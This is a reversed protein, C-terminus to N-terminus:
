DRTNGPNKIVLLDRSIASGINAFPPSARMPRRALYVCGGTGLSWGLAVIWVALIRNPTDWETVIVAVSIFGLLILLAAAGVV